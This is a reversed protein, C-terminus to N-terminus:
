KKMRRKRRRNEVEQAAKKKLNALYVPNRSARTFVLESPNGFNFNESINSLRVNHTNNKVVPEPALGSSHKKKEFPHYLGNNNLAMVYSNDGARISNYIALENNTLYKYQNEPRLGKAFTSSNIRKPPEAGGKKSKKNKTNNKKKSKPM